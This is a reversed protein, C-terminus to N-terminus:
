FILMKQAFTIDEVCSIKAEVTVKDGERTIQYAVGKVEAEPLNSAIYAATRKKAEQLAQAETRSRQVPRTEFFHATHLTFPLPVGGVSLRAAHLEKEYAGAVRGIYLPLTVGFCEVARRVKVRGTRQRGQWRLPLTFRATRTTEALVVGSAQRLLTAGNAYEVAGSVLLDGAVVADGVQVAPSGTNIQMKIIRGDAAALLNAPESNNQVAPKQVTESVDVHLVTGVPNFSMWSLEPHDYLVQQRLTAWDFDDTKAGEAVGYPALWEIVQGATLTKQGEVRIEWVRACLLHLVLAFALAGAALGYRGRLRRLLFPLGQRRVIHLRCGSRRAAERLRKFEGARVRVTLGAKGARYDWVDRGGFACLNMFREPRGGTVAVTVMGALWNLGSQLM